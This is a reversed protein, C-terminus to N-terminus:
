GIHHATLFSSLADQMQTLSAATIRIGIQAQTALFFRLSAACITDEAPAPAVATAPTAVAAASPQAPSSSGPIPRSGGGCGAILVAALVSGIAFPSRKRVGANDGGLRRTLFRPRSM